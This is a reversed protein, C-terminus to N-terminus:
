FKHLNNLFFSLPVGVEPLQGWSALWRLGLRTMSGVLLTPIKSLLDNFSSRTKYFISHGLLSRSFGSNIRAKKTNPRAKEDYGNWIFLRSM